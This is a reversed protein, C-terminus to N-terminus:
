DVNRTELSFESLHGNFIRSVKAQRIKLLKGFENQTINMSIFINYIEVAIQTKLLTKGIM